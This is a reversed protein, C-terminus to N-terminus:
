AGRCRYGGACGRADVWAARGTRRCGWGLRRAAVVRAAAGIGQRRAARGPGVALRKRGTRIGARRPRRRGMPGPGDGADLARTVVSPPPSRAAAGWRMRLSPIDRILVLTVESRAWRTSPWFWPPRLLDSSRRLVPRFILRPLSSG